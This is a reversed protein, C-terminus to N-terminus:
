LMDKNFEVGGNNQTGGGGMGPISEAPGMKGNKYM